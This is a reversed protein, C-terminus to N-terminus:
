SLDAAKRKGDLGAEKIKYLLSRYSINLLKAARLRNWQTEELAKLIASQEAAQAAKRSIARLSGAAIVTRRAPRQDNDSATVGVLPVRTLDLDNLVVMRKIMNELERVNGPFSHQKLREMTELPLMFGERGFLRAYRDVFYNALVPIEEARQRLPPVIIRIVNLRYFLDERFRGAAVSAELDQNTAAVVRVDVEINSRGGVRSFQGDELIHLLKAQVAPHLDGVEDLFITGHNATEFKGIKLQHASTFAGREHGFLESELLERAVAACNVKVLPGHRRGGLYHVARAVLEKGTGTEGTILVTVDIVAAGTITDRVDRMGPSAWLALEDQVRTVPNEDYTMCRTPPGTPLPEDEIPSSGGRIELADQRPPGHAIAVAAENVSVQDLEM